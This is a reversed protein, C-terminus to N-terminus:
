QGQGQGKSHEMAEVRAMTIAVVRGLAVKAQAKNQLAKTATSNIWLYTEHILRFVSRLGEGHVEIGPAAVCALLCKVRLAKGEGRAGEGVGAASIAPVIVSGVNVPNGNGDVPKTQTSPTIHGGAIVKHLHELAVGVVDESSCELALQFVPYYRGVGAGPHVKKQLEDIALDCTQRLARHKWSSEKRIRRFGNLLLTDITPPTPRPPPSQPSLKSSM